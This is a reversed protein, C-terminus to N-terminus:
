NNFNEEMAFYSGKEKLNGTDDGLHDNLTADSPM